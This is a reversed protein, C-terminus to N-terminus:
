SYHGRISDLSVAGIIILGVIAVQWEHIRGDILGNRLVGVALRRDAHRHHRRTGERVLHRRSHRRRHRRIRPRRRHDIGANLRADHHLIGAGDPVGAYVYVLVQYFRANSGSM